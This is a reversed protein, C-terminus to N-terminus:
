PACCSPITQSSLYSSPFTIIDLFHQLSPADSPTPMELIARIKEPSPVLGDATLMHGIFPVEQLRFRMKEAKLKLNRGRARELFKILNQDHDIVAQKLTDGRGIILFDHFMVETEPLGEVIEHMRRQWVEPASNLGFPMRLWKFRGFPTKFCTLMSSKDDLPIQWFVNSADLVTFLKAKGLRTTLEKITPLPYHERKIAQNLDKPDICIRLAGSPKHIVVMSSVWDTVETVPAIVGDAVMEDLKEKLASHIAVPIRRPPHVVPQVDTDVRIKYSTELKGLGTFVDQFQELVQQKALVTSSKMSSYVREPQDCDLIKLFGMAFCSELSLIPTYNGQLVNFEVTHKMGNRTAYLKCKGVIAERTGNYMIVSPKTPQLHEYNQDGTVEVYIDSPLM